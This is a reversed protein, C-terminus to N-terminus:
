IYFRYSTSTIFAITARNYAPRVKINYRIIYHEIFLVIKYLFTLIDSPISIILGKLYLYTSKGLSITSISYYLIRNIALVSM